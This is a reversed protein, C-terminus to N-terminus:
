AYEPDILGDSNLGTDVLIPGDDHIFLVSYVPYRQGSRHRPQNDAVGVVQGDLRGFGIVM